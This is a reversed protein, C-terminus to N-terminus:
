QASTPHFRQKQSAEVYGRFLGRRQSLEDYTGQEAVAGDALFLIRDARRLTSLRHAIVLVSVGEEHALSQIAYSVMAENEADLQSTLEDMLLLRPKHYLSRAFAIRQRQGGSLSSGREGVLTDLGQPFKEIFDSCTALDCIHRLHADANADVHEQQTGPTGSLHAAHRRITINKAITDDFLLPDQPVVGIQSRLWDSNLTQIDHGGFRIMGQQPDYLRATLYTITSKGSGSAGALAVIEGPEVTFSVNQLILNQPAMPYAFSVKDFELRAKYPPVLCVGASNRESHLIPDEDLIEVVRMASGQAKTFQGYANALNSLSFGLNIAYMTFASLTGVSLEGDMVLRSGCYLIGVLSMQSVFYLAGTYIGEAIGTNKALQYVDETKKAYRTIELEETGFLRVTRIGSIKEAAHATSAALADMYQRSLQRVIRGALVALGATPPLVMASILFLKPSYVLLWAVAMSFTVSSRVTRSLNDTLVRSIVTTDASLRNVLEGTHRRDFFEMRKGLIKAFVDIRLRRSIREGVITMLTVRASAAVCGVAFLAVLGWAVMALQDMLEPHPPEIMDMIKGAAAPFTMTTMTQVFQCLSAAILLNTQPKVFELIRRFSTNSNLVTLAGWPRRFRRWVKRGHVHLLRWASNSSRRRGASQSQSQSQSSGNGHIRARPQEQSVGPPLPSSSYWRLGRAVRDRQTQAITSANRVLTSRVCNRLCSLAGASRLYVCSDIRRLVVSATGSTPMALARALAQALTLSPAPGSAPAPAPVAGRPHMARWRAAHSM